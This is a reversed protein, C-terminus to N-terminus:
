MPPLEDYNSSKASYAPTETPVSDSNKNKIEKLLSIIEENQEQLRKDPLAIVYLYGFIWLWFCRAFIHDNVYGKEAACKEFWKAIFFYLVLVAIGGLIIGIM